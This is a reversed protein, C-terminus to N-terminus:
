RRSPNPITPTFLTEAQAPTIGCLRCHYPNMPNVISDPIVDGGARRVQGVTTVGIQGNRIGNSLENIDRGPASNVSVHDLKGASDITVGTGNAFQEAKCTGGRCVLADDPLSPIAKTVGDVAEDGHAAIARGADLIEDGHAVARVAMGGGTAFPVLAGAVDAGLALGRETSWGNAAIDYVDYAIFGIDLLTDFFHGTPDTNRVPNNRAYSYRNLDQPNGTGGSPKGWAGSAVADHPSLTLSGAGPVISDASVFRGIGPDYYRANYFLLGTADLYQGTYNRKTQAIGGTIVKGWPDFRQSSLLTGAANTTASVSGLHDGHVFSLGAVSDRVASPRNITTIRWSRGLLRPIM